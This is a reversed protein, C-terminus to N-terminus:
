IALPDVDVAWRQLGRHTAKLAHLGPVWQSLLRQLAARSPSELLMQMREIDAVRSVAPPVPPYVTVQAGDHLARAAEAAANLFATAV